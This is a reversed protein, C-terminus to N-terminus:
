KIIGKGQLIEWLKQRNEEPRINIEKGTEQNKIGYKENLEKIKTEKHTKLRLQKLEQINEGRLKALDLDEPSLEVSKLEKIEDFETNYAVQLSWTKYEPIVGMLNVLFIKQSEFLNNKDFGLPFIGFHKILFGDVFYEFKNAEQM